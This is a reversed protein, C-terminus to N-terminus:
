KERYAPPVDEGYVENVIHEYTTSGGFDKDKQTAWYEDLRNTIIKFCTRKAVVPDTRSAERADRLDDEDIQGLATQYLFDVFGKHRRLEMELDKITNTRKSMCIAGNCEAMIAFQHNYEVEEENIYSLKVIRLKVVKDIFDAFQRYCTM